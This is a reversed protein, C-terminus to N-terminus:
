VLSVEEGDIIDVVQGVYLPLEVNTPDPGEANDSTRGIVRCGDLRTTFIEESGLPTYQVLLSFTVLSIKKQGDRVPAVAMLKRFFATKSALSLTVSGNADEEGVTSKVKKGRRRRVGVNVSDDFKIASFDLDEVSEGDAIDITAGLDAWSCEFDNVAHTANAAM